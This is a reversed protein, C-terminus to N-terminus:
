KRCCIARSHSGVCAHLNCCKRTRHTRAASSRRARRTFASRRRRHSRAERPRPLNMDGLARGVARYVIDEVLTSKGSGSPGTVACVVGLPIDVDVRDLNNAEIGHVRLFNKATRPEKKGVARADENKWARATPLNKDSSIKEPPGDFLIKGGNKGAGPGLEVVRDCSAVVGRDHEIVLVSNGAEALHRMAKTLPAVDAAHLGVTPEDLVFMSGTLSAGLATTLGARQSEGGSLTRAQRDLTLYGLGVAELYGLRSALEERVRKGQPDRAAVSSLLANAETVALHHWEGINKGAVRYALATANLRAAHCSPCATYERFRALFVRVHMKYTRSELWKFWARIGPYKGGKWEGEGEIVADRAAKNLKQWPMDTPIKKKKCFKDLVGREWESSPGAWAKIAGKAISKNPDPIVKDWDISIIRGFGRCEACAGLPSNYSFLGPRPEDFSRTCKPCVLGRAVSVRRVSSSDSTEDFMKVQPDTSIRLEARGNGRAWATEIAQQVRRTDEKRVVIRDLVVEVRVDPATAESPKVQDIDRFSGGILLRRYGDKILSERLELFADADEARVPYSVVARAGNEKALLDKAAREPTTAVADLGCDPCRPVAERAFLAAFYPELDAMTSLTSRSSKVPARRDVAVSAAVPDLKDM